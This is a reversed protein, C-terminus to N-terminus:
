LPTRKAAVRRLDLKSVQQPTLCDPAFWDRGCSERNLLSSVPYEVPNGVTAMLGLAIAIFLMCPVVTQLMSTSFSEPLAVINFPTPKVIKPAHM